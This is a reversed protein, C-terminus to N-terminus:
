GTALRVTDSEVYVAWVEDGAQPEDHPFVDVWMDGGHADVADQLERILQKANVAM